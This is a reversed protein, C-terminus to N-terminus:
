LLMMIGVWLGCLGLTIPMTCWPVMVLFPLRVLTISADQCVDIVEELSGWCCWICCMFLAGFVCISIGIAFSMEDETGASLFQFAGFGCGGLIGLITIYGM